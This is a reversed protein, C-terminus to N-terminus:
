LQAIHQSSFEHEGRMRPHDKCVLEDIGLNYTNGACAPTIRCLEILAFSKGPTGRAHPPSGLTASFDSHSMSHEGRM